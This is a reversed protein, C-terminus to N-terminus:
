CMFWSCPSSSARSWLSILSASCVMWSPPFVFTLASSGTELAFRVTPAIILPFIVRLCPALASGSPDMFMVNLPDVPCLKPAHVTLPM